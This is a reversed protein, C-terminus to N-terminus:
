IHSIIADTLARTGLTGGIDPTGLGANLVTEVAHEVAAAEEDLDFSLRLMM